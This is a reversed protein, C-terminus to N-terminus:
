IFLVFLPNYSQPHFLLIPPLFIWVLDMTSQHTSTIDRISGRCCTSSRAIPSLFVLHIHLAFSLSFFNSRLQSRVRDFVEMVTRQAEEKSGLNPAFTPTRLLEQINGHIEDM